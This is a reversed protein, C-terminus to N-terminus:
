RSSRGDSQHLNVIRREHVLQIMAVHQVEAIPPALVPHSLAIEIQVIGRGEGKRRARRPQNGAGEGRRPDHIEVRHNRPAPGHGGRASNMSFAEAGM